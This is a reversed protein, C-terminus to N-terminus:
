RRVAPPPFEFFELADSLRGFAGRPCFEVDRDVSPDSDEIPGSDLPEGLTQILHDITANDGGVRIVHRHHRDVHEVAGLVLDDDIGGPAVRGRVYAATEIRPLRLPSRGTPDVPHPDLLQIPAHHPDRELKRGQVLDDRPSLTRRQMPETESM